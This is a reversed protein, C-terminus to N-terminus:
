KFENIQNLKYLAYAYIKACKILDDIDIWENPQHAIGIQGPFSPGYPVITHCVHAYTGGTTTTPKKNDNNAENYADNLTQILTSNPNHLVCPSNSILEVKLNTAKNRIKDIIEDINCDPYSLSFKVALYDHELNEFLKNRIIMEGFHEDKVNIGLRDGNPKANMLYENVFDILEKKHGSVRIMARGREGYIAPFKNDPTFGAIPAKEKSLYYRCDEMGTEENTGFIIRIPHKLKINCEKLALLGYFAAILPGKNDLAGRGWIKNDEIYASFPPHNWGDGVEVVDLHGMIAIYDDGDGWQGHGMYNDVSKIKLGERECMKLAHNLANLPGKGFPADPTAETRVSDIKVLDCVDNIMQAKLNDIVKFLKDKM